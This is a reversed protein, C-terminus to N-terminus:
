DCLEKALKIFFKPEVSGNTKGANIILEVDEICDEDSIFSFPKELMPVILEAQNATVLTARIM